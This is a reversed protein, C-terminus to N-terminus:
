VRRLVTVTGLAFLVLRYIWCTSYNSRFYLWVLSGILLRRAYHGMANQHAIHVAVSATSGEAISARTGLDSGRVAEDLGLLSVCVYV